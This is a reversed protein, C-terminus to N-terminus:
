KEMKREIYKIIDISSSLDDSLNLFIDAPDSM